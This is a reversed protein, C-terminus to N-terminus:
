DDLRAWTPLCDFDRAVKLASRLGDEHFGYRTWAGAFWACNLGQITPLRQQAITAPGDFQPHEYDFVAITQDQRPRAAPNLTLVLPTTFPLPQLDNLLYSVCVPHRDDQGRSALYNWASWVKGNRPLLTTDTHLYAKNAQYRVAGLIEREALSADALMALAEPAHCALVVADFEEAGAPSTVVVKQGKRLVMTVPSKVRVDAIAPMMKKVYERGGGLVTRWQPRGNIQLLHHNLCFRLFTTAPFKLVDAQSASWIAGAMPLLYWQRFATGYGEADLLDGLTTASGVVQDLYARANRNFRLIDFIMGWFRPRFLNSRQAFVTSLNTGAWEIGDDAVSVGFTMSTPHLNVGLGAFLALLNPYTLDNCVLFGTDVPATKGDLTVEVTNTHGGVYDNAEFLTVEHKESLLWASALGAIGGGVVAVRQRDSGAAM